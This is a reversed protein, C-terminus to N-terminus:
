ANLMLRPSFTTTTHDIKLVVREVGTRNEAGAYHVFFIACQFSYSRRNSKQKAMASFSLDHLWSSRSSLSEGREVNTADLV